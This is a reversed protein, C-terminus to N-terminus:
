EKIWKGSEMLTTSGATASSRNSLKDFCRLASVGSYVKWVYVGEAWAEANISTVNETIGQCHILRGNADYVEVRANTLATRINLVDHGPNPYAIAVKLGNAHAEEVGLVAEAPFKTVARHRNGNLLKVVGSTLLMGGDRTAAIGLAAQSIGDDYTGFYVTSLTEFDPSLHEIVIRSDQTSSPGLNLAYVYLLSGDEFQIPPSMEVVFDWGDTKRKAYHLIPVNNGYGNVDDNYEYLAVSYHAFRESFTNTLLTTGRDTRTVNCDNFEMPYNSQVQAAHKFSRSRVINFDQDLYILNDEKEEYIDWRCGYYLYLSDAKVMHHRRFNYAPCAGCKKNGSYAARALVNGEFDMKFFVTSDCGRPEDLDATVTKDYVGVITSDNDVFASYLYAQGNNWFEFLNEESLWESTDIPIEVEHSEAISLDDNLRYLGLICHDTVPKFNKFYNPSCTDHDPSYAMLAYVDGSGNELVYPPYGYYGDKHYDSFALENGESDLKWLTPSHLLGCSSDHYRHGMVMIDGDSLEVSEYIMTHATPCVWEWEQSFAKAGFLLALMILLINRNKM